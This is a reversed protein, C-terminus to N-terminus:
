NFSKRLFDEEEEPDMSKCVSLDVVKPKQINKLWPDFLDKLENSKVEGIVSIFDSTIQLRVSDETKHKCYSVRVLGNITNVLCSNIDTNRIGILLRRADENIGIFIQGLSLAVEETVKRIELQMM